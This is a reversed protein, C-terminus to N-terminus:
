NISSHIMELREPELDRIKRCLQKMSRRFTSLFNNASDVKEKYLTENQKVRKINSIMSEYLSSRNQYSVDAAYKVMQYKIMTDEAEKASKFYSIASNKIERDM